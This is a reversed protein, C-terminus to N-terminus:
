SLLGAFGALFCYPAFWHLRRSRGVSVLFGLALLGVLFSLLVAIFLGGVPFELESWAVEPLKLMAAGLIAPISLLFSFSAASELRFGLFLACVITVGSRSIGPMIACAQACGIVLAAFLTMRKLDHTGYHQRSSLLVLGTILLGYCSIQAGNFSGTIADEFFVGVLGAPVSGLILFYVLKRDGRPDESGGWLSRLLDLVMTRYYILVAFLTGLHLVIEIVAGTPLEAGGPLFQRALVLHGSSSVPLYETLGQLVALVLLAGFPTM